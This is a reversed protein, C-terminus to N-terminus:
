LSSLRRMEIINEMWHTTHRHPYAVAQYFEQGDKEFRRFYQISDMSVIPWILKKGLAREIARWTTTDTDSPFPAGSWPHTHAVGGISNRNSWIRDWLIHSDEISGMTNGKPSPWFIAKGDLDFVMAVETVPRNPVPSYAYQANPLIKVDVLEWGEYEANQRMRFFTIAAKFNDEKICADLLCAEKEDLSGEYWGEKNREKVVHLMVVGEKDTPAAFYDDGHKEHLVLVRM